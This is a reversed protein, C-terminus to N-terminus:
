EYYENNRPIFVPYQGYWMFTRFYRELTEDGLYHGRVKFQTFDYYVCEGPFEPVYWVGAPVFSPENSLINSLFFAADESLEPPLEVTQGTMLSLAVAFYVTSNRIAWYKLSNDQEANRYDNMSSNFAFRTVELLMPYFINKELYKLSCDFVVHFLHLISDTTIIVPLDNRYIM